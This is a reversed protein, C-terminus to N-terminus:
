APSSSARFALANVRQGICSGQTLGQEIASRFHIGGYLRSNAAEEAFATFSAFARPPYGRKAHSLDVFAFREGFLATLVESAAASQVSHGSPYEPFSPTAIMPQWNADIHAQIYTVPRLLNYIYKIHWCAIFSDAVAIGMRAYAEAATDLRYGTAGLIQNLLAISHGPPTPTRGPDDSWFHAIATQEPTAQNVSEYVEMAETYFPSGPVESYPPPSGPACDSGAALVFPRTNGWYPLLPPVPQGNAFATPTWLGPGNPPVYGTNLSGTEPQDAGDTRSWDIVAEAVARGHADSRTFVVEGVASRGLAAFHRYLNEMRSQNADSARAFFHRTVTALASNAVSPWHYDLGADAPPLATLQNLQGALSQYGPMGGVVAEYLAVGSYGFARSAVPPSFGNTTETLDLQLEFWALPVEPSYASAPLLDNTQAAAPLLPPAIFFV